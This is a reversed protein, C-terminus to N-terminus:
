LNSKEVRKEGHMKNVKWWHFINFDDANPFVIEELYQDMKLVLLMHRQMDSM